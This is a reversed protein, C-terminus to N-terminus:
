MNWIKITMDTSCSALHQGLPHFAIYNVVGTHGKMTHESEGSDTDWIRISADESSTAAISYVPHLAARTVRARHGELTFKEPFKPLGDGAQGPKIPDLM